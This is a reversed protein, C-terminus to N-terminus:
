VLLGGARLSILFLDGEGAQFAAIGRSRDRKTTRGDLYQYAINQADLWERLIALHDVFQSFVLAKHGSGRLQEVIEVFAALKCSQPAHDPVTLRPNCCTRRM